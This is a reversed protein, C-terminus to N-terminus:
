EGPRTRGPSQPLSLGPRRRLHRLAVQRGMVVGRHALDARPCALGHTQVHTLGGLGVGLLEQTPNVVDGGCSHTSPAADLLRRISIQRNWAGPLAEIVEYGVRFCWLPGLHLRPHGGRGLHPAYCLVVVLYTLTRRRGRRGCGAPRRQSPQHVEETNVM